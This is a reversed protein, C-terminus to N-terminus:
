DQQFILGRLLPDVHGVKNDVKSREHGIAKLNFVPCPRRTSPDDDTAVRRAAMFLISDNCNERGRLLVIQIISRILNHIVKLFLAMNSNKRTAQRWKPETQNLKM